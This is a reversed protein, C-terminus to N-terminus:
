RGSKPGKTRAEQMQELVRVTGILSQLDPPDMMTCGGHLPGHGHFYHSALTGIVAGLDAPDINPCGALVSQLLQSAQPFVRAQGAQQVDRAMYPTGQITGPWAPDFALCGGFSPCHPGFPPCHSGFPPCHSGFPPCRPGFLPCHSGYPLCAPDIVPCIGLVQSLSIAKARLDVMLRQQEDLTLKFEDAKDAPLEFEEGRDNFVTVSKKRQLMKEDDIQFVNGARDCYIAM